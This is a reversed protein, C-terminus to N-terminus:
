VLRAVGKEALEKVTQFTNEDRILKKMKEVASREQMEVLINILTIQLLPDTQVDLSGVLAERVTTDGTYRALAHIAAMRVNVSEDTNMTEILAYILASEPEAFEQTYKAAYIRQSASPQELKAMIMMQKVQSLENRLAYVEADSANRSNVLLGILVGSILLAFGAAIQFVPSLILSPGKLNLKLASDVRSEHEMELTPKSDEVMEMFKQRLSTDPDKEQKKNLVGIVEALQELEGACSTCTEVHKRVIETTEKDLTKDIFDVLLLNVEKCEM